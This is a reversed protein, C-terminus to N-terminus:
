KEKEVTSKDGDVLQAECSSLNKKKGKKLHRKLDTGPNTNSSTEARFYSLGYVGMDLIKPYTELPILSKTYEVWCNCNILRGGVAM